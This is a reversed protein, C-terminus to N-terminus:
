GGGVFTVIEVRDGTSLARAGHQSRPVIEQNIEVACPSALAGLAGLLSEVTTGPQVRRPEGNVLVDIQLAAATM